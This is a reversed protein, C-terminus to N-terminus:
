AASRLTGTARSSAPRKQTHFRCERFKEVRVEAMIAGDAFQSARQLGEEGGGVGEPVLSPPAIAPWRFHKAVISSARSRGRLFPVAASDNALAPVIVHRSPLLIVVRNVIADESCETPAGRGKFSPSFRM